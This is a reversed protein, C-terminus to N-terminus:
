DKICRLPFATQNTGNADTSFFGGDGASLCYVFGKSKYTSSWYYSYQGRSVDGSSIYGAAHLKLGSNWPGNWDAWPVGITSINNWETHTPIRWGAGLELTCPDETASWSTTANNTTSNWTPTITGDHQYGQKRNFQWYWGGSAETADDVATAQQSAGLNRTIWCKTPEGPIGTVTGYTVTKDVPAVGNAALHNITLTGCSAFGGGGKYQVGQYAPLMVQAESTHTLFAFLFVFYYRM